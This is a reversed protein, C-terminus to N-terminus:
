YYDAQQEQVSGSSKFIVWNAHKRPHSGQANEIKNCLIVKKEVYWLVKKAYLSPVKV